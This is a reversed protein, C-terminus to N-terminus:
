TLWEGTPAKASADWSWGGDTSCYVNTDCFAGAILQAEDTDGEIDLSIIDVAEEGICGTDIGLVNMDLCSGDMVMYVDGGCGQWVTNQTCDSCYDCDTVGVFM